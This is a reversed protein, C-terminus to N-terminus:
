TSNSDSTFALGGAKKGQLQTDWGYFSHLKSHLLTFWCTNRLSSLKVCFQVPFWFSGPSRASPVLWGTPWLDFSGWWLLWHIVKKGLHDQLFGLSFGFALVVSYDSDTSECIESICPLSINSSVSPVLPGTPRLGPRSNESTRRQLVMRHDM